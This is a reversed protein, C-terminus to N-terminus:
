LYLAVQLWADVALCRGEDIEHSYWKLVGHSIPVGFDCGPICDRYLRVQWWTDVIPCNEKGIKENYWKWAEPNIPEGVSGLVRLSSLDFDKIQLM